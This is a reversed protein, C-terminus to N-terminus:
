PFLFNIRVRSDPEALFGIDEWLDHLPEEGGEDRDSRLHEPGWRGGVHVLLNRCHEVEDELRVLGADDYM